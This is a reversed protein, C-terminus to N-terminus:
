GENEDGGNEGRMILAMDEAGVDADDETAM